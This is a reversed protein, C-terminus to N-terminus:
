NRWQRRRRSESATERLNSPSFTRRRLLPRQMFVLSGVANSYVDPGKLQQPFYLMDGGFLAYDPRPAPASRPLAHSFEPSEILSLFM